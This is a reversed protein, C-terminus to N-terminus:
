SMCATAICALQVICYDMSPAFLGHTVAIKSYYCGTTGIIWVSHLNWDEWSRVHCYCYNGTATVFFFHTM